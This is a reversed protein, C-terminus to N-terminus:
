LKAKNHQLETLFVSMSRRQNLLTLPCLRLEQHSSRVICMGNRSGVAGVRHSRRWMWPIRLLSQTIGPTFEYGPFKEYLGSLSLLDQHSASRNNSFSSHRWDPSLSFRDPVISTHFLSVVNWSSTLGKCFGQAGCKGKRWEVVNLENMLFKSM